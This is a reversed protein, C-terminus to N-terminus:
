LIGKLSTQSVELTKSHTGKSPHPNHSYISKNAHVNAHQALGIFVCKHTDIKFSWVSWKSHKLRFYEIKMSVIM